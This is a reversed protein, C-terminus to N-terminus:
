DTPHASHCRVEDSALSVDSPTHLNLDQEWRWPLTPCKSLGDRELRSTGEPSAREVRAREALTNPTNPRSARGVPGYVRLEKSCQPNSDRWVWWQM